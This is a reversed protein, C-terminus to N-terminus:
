PVWWRWGEDTRVRYMRGRRVRQVRRGLRDVVRLGGREPLEGWLLTSSRPDYRSDRVGTTQGMVWLVMNMLLRANDLDNWNDYLVDGPDGTGDDPPSSDGMACFRGQGYVGCVVMMNYTSGEPVSPHWVVGEVVAQGGVRSIVTAGYFAISRVPGTPGQAVPHTSSVVSSTTSYNNYSEGQVHFHIGLASEFAQNLVTPADWGDGDRDSGNHNGILIVGGGQALFDLVAQAESASLPNQPEPLILVEFRSLDLSDGPNGYRLTQGPPLTRIRRGTRLWLTYGWSSYAGDWSTEATPPYPTPLPATHDVVWDANGATQNKTWDFLIGEGGAWGGTILVAILVTWRLFQAM